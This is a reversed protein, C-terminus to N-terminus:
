ININDCLSAAMAYRALLRTRSSILGVLFSSFVSRLTIWGCKVNIVFYVPTRNTSSLLFLHRTTHFSALNFAFLLGPRLPSHPFDRWSLEIGEILFKQENKEMNRTAFPSHSSVLLFLYYSQCNISITQIFLPNAKKWGWRSEGVPAPSVRFNRILVKSSFLFFIRRLSHTSSVNLPLSFTKHAFKLTTTPLPAWLWLAEATHEGEGTHLKEVLSEAKVEM